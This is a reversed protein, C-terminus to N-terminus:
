LVEAVNAIGPVTTKRGMQCRMEMKGLMNRLNWRLGKVSWSKSSKPARIGEMQAGFPATPSWFAKLFRDLFSAQPWPTGGLCGSTGRSMLFRVFTNAIDICFFGRLQHVIHSSVVM